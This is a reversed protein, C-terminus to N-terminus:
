RVAAVDDPMVIGDNNGWAHREYTAVAAIDYDSLKSGHEAMVGNYDVGQVVIPGQLGHVIIRAHNQANGYYDGSGALPPFQGAMGQGDGQHCTSCLQKYVVEGRENLAALDTPGDEMTEFSPGTDGGSALTVAPSACYRYGTKSSYLWSQCEGFYRFSYREAVEAADRDQELLQVDACATAFLLSFVPLAILLKQSM